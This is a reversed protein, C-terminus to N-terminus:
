QYVILILVSSFITKVIATIKQVSVKLECLWIGMSPSVPQFFAQQVKVRWCAM